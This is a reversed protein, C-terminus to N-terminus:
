PIRARARPVRFPRPGAAGDGDARRHGEPSAEELSGAVESSAGRGGGGRRRGRARPVRLHEGGDRAAEACLDEFRVRLYHASTASATAPRRWTSNWLAISRTATRAKELEDGLVARGHWNLQSQNKSFAMDRGDRLFHLFRLGLMTENWFRLLYISRPEKWGWSIADRPATSLHDALVSRLDSEMEAREEQALDGGARV